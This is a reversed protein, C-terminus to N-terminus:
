HHIVTFVTEGDIIMVKNHAIAHAADIMTIIGSHALFDASTYKERRQSKDLIVEVKIGRKSANLLAKAIPASTFSYAQVLISIKAKDLEQIITQTCGRSPSFYVSWSPCPNSKEQTPFKWPLTGHGRLSKFPLEGGDKACIDLTEAEEHPPHPPLLRIINCFRQLIAKGKQLLLSLFSFWPM